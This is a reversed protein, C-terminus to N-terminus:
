REERLEVPTDDRDGHPHQEWAKVYVENSKKILRQPVRMNRLQTEEWFHILARELKRYRSGQFRFGQSILAKELGKLTYETLNYSVRLCNPAVTVVELGDIGDLLQRVQETQEALLADFRLLRTKASDYQHVLGQDRHSRHRVADRLKRAQEPNM